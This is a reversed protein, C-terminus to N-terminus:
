ARQLHFATSHSNPLLLIEPGPSILFMFCLAVVVATIKAAISLAEANALSLGLSFTIVNCPAIISLWHAKLTWESVRECSHIILRPTWSALSSFLQVSWQTFSM